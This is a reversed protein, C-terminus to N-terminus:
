APEMVDTFTHTQTHARMQTHALVIGDSLATAAAAECGQRYSVAM